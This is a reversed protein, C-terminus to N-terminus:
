EGVWRQEDDFLNRYNWTNPFLHKKAEHLDMNEGEYYLHGAWCSCGYHGDRHYDDESIIKKNLLVDAMEYSDYDPDLEPFLHAYEQAIRESEEDCKRSTQKREQDMGLKYQGFRNAREWAIEFPETNPGQKDWRANDVNGLGAGYVSSYYQDDGITGQENLPYVMTPMYGRRHWFRFMDETQIDDSDPKIQGWGGKDAEEGTPIGLIKERYEQMADVIGTGIGRGRLHKPAFLRDINQNRYFYGFPVQQDMGFFQEPERLEDEDLPMDVVTGTPASGGGMLFGFSRKPEDTERRKWTPRINMIRTKKDVPDYFDALYTQRDEWKEDGEELEGERVSGPVFPMKVISDWVAEFPEASATFLPHDIQMDEEDIGARHMDLEQQAKCSKYQEYAQRVQEIRKEELAPDYGNPHLHKQYGGKWSQMAKHYGEIGYKRYSADPLQEIREQEDPPLTDLVEHAYDFDWIELQTEIFAALGSPFNECPKSFLDEGEQNLYFDHMAQTDDSPIANIAEKLSRCCADDQPEDRVNEINSEGVATDVNQQFSEFAARQEPSMQSIRQLDNKTISDWSHQFVMM